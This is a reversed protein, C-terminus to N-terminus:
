GQLIELMKATVENENVGSLYASGSLVPSHYKKRVRMTTIILDVSGDYNDVETLTCQM